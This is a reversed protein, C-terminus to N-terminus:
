CIACSLFHHAKTMSPGVRGDYREVAKLRNYQVLYHLIQEALVTVIHADHPVRDTCM